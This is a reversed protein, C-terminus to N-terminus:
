ELSFLTDTVTLQSFISYHINRQIERNSINFLYEIICDLFQSGKKFGAQREGGDQLAGSVTSTMCTFLLSNEFLIDRKYNIIYSILIEFLFVYM